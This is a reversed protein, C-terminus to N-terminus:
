LCELSRRSEVPVEYKGMVPLGDQNLEFSEHEFKM